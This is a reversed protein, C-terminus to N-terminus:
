SGAPKSQRLAALGMKAMWLLARVLEAPPIDPHDALLKGFSTWNEDSMAAALRTVVVERPLVERAYNVSSLARRGTAETAADAQRLRIETSKGPVFTPFSRFLTFPEQRTARRANSEEGRMPPTSRRLEHLREWLATYQAFVVSWDFVERARRRGADGMRARLSDSEILRAFADIAADVDVAIFQSTAGIYVDYTDLQRDHRDALDDGFGAPPSWVPVRFGDIEHRVTDKYGNWDTVVVPLGAAMAEIPTLGFTEQINDSFSTFIDACSWATEREDKDAGNLVIMNVSPAFKRAEDLFATRIFQNPFEGCLVLHVRRGTRKAAGELGLFMPLPHAKGHFSLRGVFLVAVEGEAFGLKARSKARTGEPFNFDSCHVGLPIVPFQPLAPPSAGLRQQLHEAERQIVKEVIDRVVRSTCIVADWPYVPASILDSILGLAGYSSLTHTVGCISYDRAGRHHQRPWAHEGIGPDPRYLLGAQALKQPELWPVYRLEPPAQTLLSVQNGFDQAAQRSAAFCWIREPSSNLAARLFGQGATQRGMLKTRTDYTERAYLLSFQM